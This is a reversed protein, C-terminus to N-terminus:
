PSFGFTEEAKLGSTLDFVAVTWNGEEDNVAPTFEMSFAGNEACCYGSSEHKRGQPDAIEVQIPQLGSLPNREEDAMVVMLRGPQGKKLENPTQIKLGAIRMPYLALIKGGLEDLDVDFLFGDADRRVTLAKRELLDYAVLGPHNWDKLRISATQPLLKGLVAKYQGVRDDYTRKDNVVFLYKVDGKELMNFLVTPSDCDVQPEVIGELRNRLNSAYSEMIRQDDLATVGTVTEIEASDPQLHDNWEAFTENKAIANANVKTRYTFDFDFRIAGPIEAGLYQDAIVIGGRKQFDLIEQYVSQTLVDCKPLVLVDYEDLGYREVTEDFLVDAQLHAMALVTYFHYPQMNHYGGRLRPSTGHVRAAASSLVAIRRPEVELRTVMPGYPKFVKDSLEKIALSTSYPVRLTDTAVPNCASSYYYGLIKPARSLNIWTTVKVRGPGMLMWEDTPALEGPYNLMTVTNIYTQGAPRCATRLTEVYLMLKPDPNTYTWTEIVDLGPFLDYLATERYPDSITLIDPRYRHVMDVTRQNAASLGNGHKYLFKHYLYKKDNDSIVGPAVFEPDGIDEETFGLMERMLLDGAENRNRKLVDVVETNFFATKVQPYVQVHTMLERNAQDQLRAVERHLPNPLKIDRGELVGRNFADPDAISEPDIDRLGGNPRIVAAAGQVLGQDLGAGAAAPATWSPGHWSTFGHDLYWGDGGGGWLWVLLRQPDPKKALVIKEHLDGLTEKSSKATVSLPYEQSRLDWTAVRFSASVVEGKPLDGVASSATRIGGLDMELTVNKAAEECENACHVVFLIEEGRYFARRPTEIRLSVAPKATCNNSAFGCIVLCLAAPWTPRLIPGYTPSLLRSVGARNQMGAM